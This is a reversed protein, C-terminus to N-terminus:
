WTVPRALAPATTWCSGSSRRARRVLCAVARRVGGGHGKTENGHGSAPRQQLMCAPKANDDATEPGLDQSMKEEPPPRPRVVEAARLERESHMERFGAAAPKSCSQMTRAGWSTTWNHEVGAPTVAIASRRM